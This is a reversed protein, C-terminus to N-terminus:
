GQAQEGTAAAAAAAAADTKARRKRARRVEIELRQMQAGVSVLQPVVREVAEVARAQARRLPPPALLGYWRLPDAAAAATTALVVAVRPVADDSGPDPDPDPTVAVRRAAQMRADYHDRGFRAGREGAFNARALDQYMGAQLRGLQARLGAYEDVLGLYRELLADVPDTEAPSPPLLPPSPVPMGHQRPTNRLASGAQVTRKEGSRDANTSTSTPPFSQAASAHGRFAYGSSGTNRALARVPTSSFKKLAAQVFFRQWSSSCIGKM